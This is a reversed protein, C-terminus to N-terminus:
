SPTGDQRLKKLAAGAAQQEAEKKSGARGSGLIQDHFQVSVSFIRAHAPGDEAELM